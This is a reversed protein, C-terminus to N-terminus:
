KGPVLDFVVTVSASIAIQGMPLVEGNIPGSDAEQVRNQMGSLAGFGRSRSGHFFYGSSNETITEPAGVSCKLARALDVAKEQAAKIAMDRAQDKFKRVDSSLYDFGEFMNAGGKLGANVVKEFLKVDKLRVAYLRTARYGEVAVENSRYVVDMTMAEAQVNKDEIGIDKMAKLFGGSKMENLSQARDLMGDSTRVGFYLVVEDPVVYVAAEGNTSITRIPPLDSAMVKASYVMAALMVMAGIIVQRM